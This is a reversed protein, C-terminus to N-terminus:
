QPSGNEHETITDAPEPLALFGNIWTNGLGTENHLTHVFQERSAAGSAAETLRSMQAQTLAPTWGALAVLDDASTKEPDPAFATTYGIAEARAAAWRWAATVVAHMVDIRDADLSILREAALLEARAAYLASWLRCLHEEHEAVEWAFPDAQVPQRSGAPALRPAIVPLRTFRDADALLEWAVREILKPEVRKRFHNVEHGALEAARERRMTLNQGPEAPPLGFLARAAAAYRADPFRALLGRLTGDLAATRSAVDAPDVARATIGRLELLVPDVAAPTVPLGQRVLRGVAAVM